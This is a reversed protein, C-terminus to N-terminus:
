RRCGPTAAGAPPTCVSTGHIQSISQADTASQPREASQENAPACAADREPATIVGRRRLTRRTATARQELHSTARRREIAAVATATKPPLAPGMQEM